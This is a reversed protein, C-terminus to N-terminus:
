VPAWLAGPNGLTHVKRQVEGQEGQDTDMDRRSQPVMKDIAVRHQGSHQRSGPVESIAQPESLSPSLM